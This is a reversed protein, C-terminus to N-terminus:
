RVSRRVARHARVKKRANKRRKTIIVKGNVLRASVPGGEGGVEIVVYSYKKDEGEVLHQGVKGVRVVAEGRIVRPSKNEKIHSRTSRDIWVPDRAYV